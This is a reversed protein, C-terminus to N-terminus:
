HAVKLISDSTANDTEIFKGSSDEDLMLVLTMVCRQGIETEEYSVGYQIDYVTHM